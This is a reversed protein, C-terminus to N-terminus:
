FFIFKKMKPNKNRYNECKLLINYFNKILFKMKKNVSMEM